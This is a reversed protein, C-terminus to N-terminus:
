LCQVVQIHGPNPGACYPGLWVMQQEVLEIHGSPSIDEAQAECIVLSPVDALFFGTDWYPRPVVLAHRELM